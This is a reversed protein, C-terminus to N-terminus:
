SKGKVRKKAIRGAKSAYYFRPEATLFHSGAGKFFNNELYLM